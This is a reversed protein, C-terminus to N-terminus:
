GNYMTRYMDNFRGQLTSQVDPALMQNVLILDDDTVDMLEYDWLEKYYPNEWKYRCFVVTGVIPQVPYVASNCEMFFNLPLRKVLGEEDVIMALENVKIHVYENTIRDDSILKGAENRYKASIDVIKPTNGPEKVIVKM